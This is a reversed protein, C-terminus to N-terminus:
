LLIVRSIGVSGSPWESETEKQSEKQSEKESSPRESRGRSFGTIYNENNRDKSSVEKINRGDRGERRGRDYSEKGKEM